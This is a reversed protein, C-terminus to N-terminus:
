RVKGSDVRYRREIGWRGWRELIFFSGDFFFLRLSPFADDSSVRYAGGVRLLPPVQVLDLRKVSLTTRGSLLLGIRGHTRRELYTDM